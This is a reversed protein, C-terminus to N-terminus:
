PKRAVGVYYPIETDGYRPTGEDPRWLQPVVLGPGVMELGEFLAAVEARTRSRLPSGSLEYTRRVLESEARDAETVFDPTVHTLVLYSDAPLVGLLTRLIERPNDADPVFHLLANLSLAVPRGLDITDSLEPADIIGLPDTVDAQVYATRGEPTSRLLAQAYQMVIPDNDTYVVVSEPAEAQAIQHLNPETPIGTGVDLFQRVGAERALWRTARIMFDRNARSAERAIPTAALVAEAARADVEYHTKGGLYYDYMRAPHPKTTDIEPARGYQTM